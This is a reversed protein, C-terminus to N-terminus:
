FLYEFKIFFNNNNYQTSSSERSIYTFYLNINKNLNKIFTASIERIDINSEKFISKSNNNKNLNGDLLRINFSDLNKFYTKYNIIKADSDSDISAGISYEEYRYGSRYLNHSYTYNNIGSFTDIIEFSLIDINNPMLSINSELGLQYFKRSPFYGAEDEGILQGYIRFKNQLNIYYNFDFGALQNGPQDKFSVGSGANDRGILMNLITKADTPRGKGGFQAVRLFSVNLRKNPEISIRNGIILADRVVREDDLKGLFFSYNIKNLKKILSSKPIIPSYNSISISQIPRANNSLILSQNNSPSWWRSVRGYTYIHNKHKYSLYSNDFITKGTGEQKTLEINLAFNNAIYNASFNYNNNQLLREERSHIYFDDIKTQLGVSLNLNNFDLEFEKIIENLLSKCLNSSLESKLIENIRYVIYGYNVPYESDSLIINNCKNEAFKIKAQIYNDNDLWPSAYGFSVFFIFAIKINLKFFFRNIARM